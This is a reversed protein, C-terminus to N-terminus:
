CDFEGKYQRGSPLTLRIIYHGPYSSVPLQASLPSTDISVSEYSFATTNILEVEILGLDYNFTFLLLHSISEYSVTVPILGPLRVGHGETGQDVIPIIVISTDSKYAPTTKPIAEATMVMLSFFLLFILKISLNM